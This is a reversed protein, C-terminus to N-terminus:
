IDRIEERSLFILVVVIFVGGLLFCTEHVFEFINILVFNNEFLSQCHIIRM